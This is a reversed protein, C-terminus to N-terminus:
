RRKGSITAETAAKAAAQAAVAKDVIAQAEASLPVDEIEPKGDRFGQWPKLDKPILAVQPGRM